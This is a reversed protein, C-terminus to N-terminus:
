IRSPTQSKQSGAVVFAMAPQANKLHEAVTRANALADHCSTPAIVADLLKAIDM